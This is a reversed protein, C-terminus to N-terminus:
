PLNATDDRDPEQRLGTTGAPVADVAPPVMDATYLCDQIERARPHSEWGPYHRRDLGRTGTGRITDPTGVYLRDAWPINDNTAFGMASRWNKGFILVVM